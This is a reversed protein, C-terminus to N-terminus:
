YRGATENTYRYLKSAKGSRISKGSKEIEIVKNKISDRFNAKYLPKCQILEYIRQLDPLTFVEPALNFPTDLIESERKLKTLGELLVEAHDFALAEVTSLEPVYNIVNLVGNKFRKKELGYEITVNNGVLKLVDNFTIDFWAADSADDGAKIRLEKGFPILAMYTIDIVRMRPDRDPQTMTYVQELYVDTLGTEEQLERLAAQYASEDMEVFGGPLAWHNIFPHNKRKILLIQMASLDEKMRLVMMDVTVAPKEYRNPDYAALFEAETLGNKDKFETM